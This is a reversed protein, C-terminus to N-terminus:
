SQDIGFVFWCTHNKAIVFCETVEFEAHLGFDVLFRRLPQEGLVFGVALFMGTSEGVSLIKFVREVFVDHLPILGLHLGLGETCFTACVKHGDNM